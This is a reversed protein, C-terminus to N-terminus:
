SVENRELRKRKLEQIQLEEGFKNLVAAKYMSAKRIGARGCEWSSSQNRPALTVVKAGWHFLRQINFAAMQQFILSM